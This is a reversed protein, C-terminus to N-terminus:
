MNPSWCIHVLFKWIDLSPKSFSSSGSNLNGVNVPGYIFTHFELFVDVEREDVITLAPGYLLCFALFKIGEFQPAPSSEQFDKSLLSILGTLRLPFWGQISTPLVSTSVLAVPNPNDSAFVRRMPFTRSSPFSQPCFSFLADSASIAPHYWRYLPCSSPCVKPSPSPCPPRAHQLGHPPLSSSM